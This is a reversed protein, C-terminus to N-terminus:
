FYVNRFFVKKFDNTFKDAFCEDFYQRTLVLGYNESSNNFYIRSRLTVLVLNQNNSVDLSGYFTNQESFSVANKSVMEILPNILINSSRYAEQSPYGNPLSSDGTHDCLKNELVLRFQHRVPVNDLVGQALGRNDDRSLRRDQMVEFSGSKQSSSGLPSSTAISLRAVADEIWGLTPLPYYNGQIPLKSFRKRKLYQFGNLDTYFINDSKISTDLRM